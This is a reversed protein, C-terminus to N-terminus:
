CERVKQTLQRRHQAHIDSHIQRRQSSILVTRLSLLRNYQSQPRHYVSIAQLQREVLLLLLANNLDMAQGCMPSQKSHNRRQSMRHFITVVPTPPILVLNERLLPSSTFAITIRTSWQPRSNTVSVNSLHRQRQRRAQTLYNIREHQEPARLTITM